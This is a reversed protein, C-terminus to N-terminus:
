DRRAASPNWAVDVVKAEVGEGHAVRQLTLLDVPLDHPFYDFIHVELGKDL